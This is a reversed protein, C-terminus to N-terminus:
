AFGCRQSRLSRLSQRWHGWHLLSEARRMLVVLSDQVPNVSCDVVFRSDTLLQDVFRFLKLFLPLLLFIRTGRRGLDPHFQVLIVVRM